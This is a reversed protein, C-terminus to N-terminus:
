WQFRQQRCVLLVGRVGLEICMALWVGSLGWQGVLLVSLTLRVGWISALNLLCPILSDGATIRQDIGAREVLCADARHLIIRREM